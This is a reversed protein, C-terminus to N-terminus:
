LKRTSGREVVICKEMINRTKGKNELTKLLNEAAKIGIAKMPLDTTTLQPFCYNEGGNDALAVISLDKPVEINLKNAIRIMHLGIHAWAAILVTEDSELLITELKAYMYEEDAQFYSYIGEYEKLIVGDHGNVADQIGKYREVEQESDLNPYLYGISKHGMNILLKTMEYAGTYYDIDVSNIEKSDLHYDIFVSPIDESTVLKIKEDVKDYKVKEQHAIFILADVKNTKYLRYYEPYDNEDKEDSCFIMNYGAEVLLPQLAGVIRIFRIEDIKRKSVIGISMSRKTKLAQATNNPFYGLKKAAKLVRKRTEDSISVHNVKNLVYSVTTRSVGAERAVDSSTVKKKMGLGSKMSKHSILSIVTM